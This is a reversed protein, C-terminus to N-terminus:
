RTLRWWNTGAQKYPEFGCRKLVNESAPNGPETEALIRSVGPQRLGWGCMAQVCETMYGCHEFAEGLGYGIEVEGQANPVHKFDASGVVVRDSKRVLFWFTHYLWSPADAEIKEAQGRIIELFIGEVPEAEYRCGMDAELAPIDEAWLRMQAASLPILLLRATELIM